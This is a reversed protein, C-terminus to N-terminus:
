EQNTKLCVTHLLHLQIYKHLSLCGYAVISAPLLQPMVVLLKYFFEVLWVESESHVRFTHRPLPPPHLTAEVRDQVETWTLGFPWM